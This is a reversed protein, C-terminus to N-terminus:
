KENEIKELKIESNRLTEVADREYCRANYITGGSEECVRTKHSLDDTVAEMNWLAMLLLLYFFLTMCNLLTDKIKEKLSEHNGTFFWFMLAPIMCAVYTM